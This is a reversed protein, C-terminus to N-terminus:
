ANLKQVIETVTCSDFKKVLNLVKSRRMVEQNIAGIRQDAYTTVTSTVLGESIQRGEILITSESKYINPLAIAIATAALFIVLPPWIMWHIRRRLIGLYDITPQSEQMKAIDM